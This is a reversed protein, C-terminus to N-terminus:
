EPLAAMLSKQAAAVGRGLEIDARFHSLAMELASIGTIVDFAGMHGLHALRLIKGKLHEQGGAFTVGMRDRLYSALRGGDINEPVYVGTAAPSPSEPALLRLGLARLASRTAEACREHRAFVEPFGEEHMMALAERLGNILSIAPTWATTDKQLSSREKELDFYFRPCKAEAM